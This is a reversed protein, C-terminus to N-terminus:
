NSITANAFDPMSDDPMKQFNNFFVTLTAMTTVDASNSPHQPRRLFFLLLM